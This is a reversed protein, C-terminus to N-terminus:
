AHECSAFVGQKIHSPQAAEAHGAHGPREAGLKDLGECLVCPEARRRVRPRPRRAGLASLNESLHDDLVLRLVATARAALPARVSGPDQGSTRALRDPRGSGGRLSV